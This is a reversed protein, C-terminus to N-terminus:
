GQYGLEKALEKYRKLETETLPRKLSIDAYHQAQGKLINFEYEKMFKQADTLTEKSRSGKKKSEEVLKDYYKGSIEERRQSEEYLIHGRDQHNKQIQHIEKKEEPTGYEDVLAVANEMHYNIDENKEYDELTFKSRKSNAEFDEAEKNAKDCDPCHHFSKKDRTTNTHDNSYHKLIHDLVEHTMDVDFDPMFKTGFGLQIMKVRNEGDARFWAEGYDGEMLYQGFSGHGGRFGWTKNVDIGISSNPYKELYEEYMDSGRVPHRNVGEGFYELEVKGRKVDTKKLSSKSKNGTPRFKGSKDKFGKM